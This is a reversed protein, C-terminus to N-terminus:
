NTEILSLSRVKLSGDVFEFDYKAGGNGLRWTKSNERVINLGESEIAANTSISANRNAPLTLTVSGDVSRSDIKDFDGELYVESDETELDLKGKFGVVRVLGDSSSIKLNGASDRVSVPESEGELDFEGTVGQLRIEKETSVVLDSKRPVFVELRIVNDDGWLGPMKKKAREAVTLSVSGEGVEENVSIPQTRDMRTETLVYKVTPQEWGRVRIKCKPADITVKPVGKVTFSNTKQDITIPSSRWMSDSMVRRADRQQHLSDTVNKQILKEDIEVQVNKLNPMEVAKTKELAKHTDKLAKQSVKASSRVAEDVAKNTSQVDSLYEEDTDEDEDESDTKVLNTVKNPSRGDKKRSISLTGNVASLKVQIEGSGLRGHLSRGVYKGKKIPLGFDNAIGGNLTEAKLTANVDSPLELNVKGNVTELSITTGPDIRDFETKVPGNVTSLNIRGRLNTANVAGNVASVKVFNTFNSVSVSGNVAEIEDLVAGKPVILRYQVEARRRKMDGSNYNSHKYETKVSFENKQADVVIDMLALSEQSDAIKTAELRVENRDWAEITIPGNVNSVSVRGNGSLPYVQEFKEVVDDVQQVVPTEVPVGAAPVFSPEDTNSILLGAFVITYLWSM